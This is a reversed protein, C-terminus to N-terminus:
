CTTSTSPAQTVAAVCSIALPPLRHRSGRTRRRRRSASMNRRATSPPASSLAPTQSLCSATQGSGVDGADVKDNNFDDKGLMRTEYGILRYEAVTSPNFEVQLKVDKAVCVLAGGQEVITDDADPADALEFKYQFGSCGGGEVALRLLPEKGQKGAILAVRAAASPSLTLTPTLTPADM